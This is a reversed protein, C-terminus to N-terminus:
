MGGMGETPMLTEKPMVERPAPLTEAAARETPTPATLQAELNAIAKDWLEAAEVNNAKRQIEAEERYALIMDVLIAVPNSMADDRRARAQERLADKIEPFLKEMTTSTSLRFNPDLMRATTARQIMYGPIDINFDVNFEMDDTVEKPMEFGYPTYHNEKLSGLWFNDIDSLVGKIGEYYPTLVQLAASAVQSMAYGTIQQQINGYLTWPFLGRQIMNQYDFLMGRLEVPIPPVALPSINEEPTGRFIAGRKFLDEERLIPVESRSQEFWRPNATDRMLQQSFTLMKNYNATMAENVAVVAEGFHEQWANGMTLSGKDPLGGVPSMFIPIRELKPEKTPEKVFQGGMVISNAVDGDNDFGWHNYVTTPSRFPTRVNWGMTRVKLNAAPASLTYIHACEPMGEGFDPYVDAPHWVEAILEDETAIAFVAYWGTALMFSVLERLWSQRGMGRYRREHRTWNRTTYGELYSASAIQAPTLDESSIKHAIISSTLLHLALNYGTRPDNSAVSEMGEQELEDKLLLLNYWDKFKTNRTVWKGRLTNCRTIMNAPTIM